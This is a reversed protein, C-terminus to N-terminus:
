QACEYFVHAGETIRLAQGQNVLGQLRRYANGKDQGTAAIVEKLDVRGLNKLADLIEQRSETMKSEGVLGECYWSATPWNWRLAIDQELVDRGLICLKARGEGRERYLGWICDALAGKATSGLIDGIADPNVGFSGRKNHHDTMMTVCNLDLATEQIPSLARTMVDVDSQDGCVARSLTDVIVLRYGRQKIRQAVRKGGGDRLDGVERMFPGLTLFDVPLGIPWGQKDMRDRLRRPSDELAMYLVPGQELSHGLFEGGAGVAQALQLVLWSKGIKSKGALIALGSPLLEPVAWVPAPWDTTLIEDASLLTLSNDM